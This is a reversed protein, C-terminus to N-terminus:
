PRDIKEGVQSAEATRRRLMWLAGGPLGIVIQALGVSVSIATAEVASIGVLGLGIVMASERLGWGALSLPIMSVLMIMPILVLGNAISLEANIGKAFCYVVFVILVQIVTSLGVIQFSKWDSFLTIRMDRILVGVPRSLHFEMMLSSIRAGLVLLVVLGVGTLVTLVNVFAGAGLFDPNADMPLLLLAVSVFLVVVLLGAARDCLISAAARGLPVGERSAEWVRVADGGIASPLLQNFFQGILMIRFVRGPAMNAGVLQGVLRWRMGTLVLQALLTLVATGAWLLQMSRLQLLLSQLDIKGILYWFLGCTILVKLVVPGVQIIKM